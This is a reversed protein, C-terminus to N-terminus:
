VRKLFEVITLLGKDFNELHFHENPAHLNEGPLGFGMLVVPASLVRSFAEVIPISGGDRTFIPRTGYVQEYADAATQLMPISPDITFPNGKERQLVNVKAGVPTHKRI